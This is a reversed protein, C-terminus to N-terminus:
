LSKSLDIRVYTAWFLYVFDYVKAFENLNDHMGGMLSEQCLLILETQFQSFGLAFWLWCDKLDFSLFVTTLQLPTWYNHINHCCVISLSQDCHNGLM